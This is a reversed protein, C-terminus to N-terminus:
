CTMGLFPAEQQQRVHLEFLSHVAADDLLTPYELFAMKWDEIKMLTHFMAERSEPADDVSHQLM